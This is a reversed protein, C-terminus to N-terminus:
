RRLTPNWQGGAARSKREMRLRLGNRVTQMWCTLLVDHRLTGMTAGCFKVIECRVGVGGCCNGMALYIMSGSVLEAILGVFERSFGQLERLLEISRGFLLVFRFGTCAFFHFSHM